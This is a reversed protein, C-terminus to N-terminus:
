PRADPGISKLPPWTLTFTTGVGEESGVTVAGNMAEMSERVIALGLGLGQALVRGLETLRLILFLVILECRLQVFESRATIKAGM